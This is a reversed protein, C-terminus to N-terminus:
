VRGGCRPDAFTCWERPRAAGTQPKRTRPNPPRRAPIRPRTQEAHIRQVARILRVGRRVQM